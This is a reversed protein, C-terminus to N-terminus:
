LRKEMEGQWEATTMVKVWGLKEYFRVAPINEPHVSLGLKEVNLTKAHDEVSCMLREGVGKRQFKPDTAIALIGWRTKILDEGNQPGSATAEKERRRRKLIRRLANLVPKRLELIVPDFILWPRLLLRGILFNLNSKLFGSFSGSYLGAFCFGALSGKDAVACIPKSLNFEKLLFAYYRWITESGLKVLARDPFTAVHIRVIGNLDDVHVDRILFESM